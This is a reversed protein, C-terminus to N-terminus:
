APDHAAERSFPLTASDTSRSSSRPSAAATGRWWRPFSRARDRLYHLERQQRQQHLLRDILLGVEGLDLPKQLYDVAGRRMAEVADRVSGYATMLVILLNADHRKLEGILELGSRDPLRLDLLVLDPPDQLAAELAEKGTGLLRVDHGGSRLAVALQHALVIEDEVILIAAM